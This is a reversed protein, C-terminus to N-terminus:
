LGFFDGVAALADGFTDVTNEIAGGVDSVISEIANVEAELERGVRRGVERTLSWGDAGLFRAAGAVPVIPSIVTFYVTALTGVAEYITPREERKLVAVVYDVISGYFEGINRGINIGTMHTFDAYAAGIPPAAVSLVVMTSIGYVAAGIKAATIRGSSIDGMNENFWDKVLSGIKDLVAKSQQESLKGPPVSTKAITEDDRKVSFTDGKRKIFYPGVIRYEYDNSPPPPAPPHLVHLDFTFSGGIGMGYVVLNAGLQWFGTPCQSGVEIAFTVEKAEGALVHTLPSTIELEQWVSIFESSSSIAPSSLSCYVDSAPGSVWRVPLKVSVTRGQRVIASVMAVAPQVDRSGILTYPISIPDWNDATIILQGTAEDFDWSMSEVNLEIGVKEGPNATVPTVGDSQRLLQDPGHVEIPRHPPSGPPGDGPDTIIDTVPGESFVRVAKVNISLASTDNLEFRATLRASVPIESLTSGGLSGTGQIKREEKPWFSPQSM